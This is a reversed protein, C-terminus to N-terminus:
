LLENGKNNCLVELDNIINFAILDKSSNNQDFKIRCVPCTNNKKKWQDICQKCYTHRNFLIPM